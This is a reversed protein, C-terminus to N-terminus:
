RSFQASMAIQSSSTRSAKMAEALATTTLPVWKEVGVVSAAMRLAIRSAWWFPVLTTNSM